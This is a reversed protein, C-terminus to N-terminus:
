GSRRHIVALALSGIMLVAAAGGCVDSDQLDRSFEQAATAAKVGVTPAREGLEVAATSSLDKAGAIVTPARERGEAEATRALDEAIRGVEDRDVTCGVILPLSAVLIFTTVVARHVARLRM